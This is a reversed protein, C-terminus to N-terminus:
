VQTGNGHGNLDAYVGLTKRVTNQWGFQKVRAKGQLILEQRLAEDRLVRALADGIAKESKPDVLIAAGAAVEPISTCNSTIVPTGCAMAELPPLGFGEYLTPYVFCSAKTYLWALSEESVYGALIVRDDLGLQCVLDCAASTRWDRLGVIVLREQNPFERWRAGYARIVGLTNKRPDAAGLALVFAADRREKGIEAPPTNLGEARGAYEQDIGLHVARIRELPIGLYDFIEQKSYESDAVIRDAREAVRRVVSRRYFSGFRQRLVKSGTLVSEPLLYMVDHITIVLKIHKALGIPATNAPCHLLEIGDQQVWRPLVFQEWVPYPLSRPERFRMNGRGNPQPFIRPDGYVVYEHAEPAHMLGSVLQVVYKGIGRLEYSAFHADIGIRM